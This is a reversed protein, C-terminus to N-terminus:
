EPHKIIKYYDKGIEYRKEMLYAFLDYSKINSNSFKKTIRNLTKEKDFGLYRIVGGNRIMDKKIKTQFSRVSDDVSFFYDSRLNIYRITFLLSKFDFYEHSKLYVIFLYPYNFLKYEIKRIEHESRAGTIWIYFKVLRKGLRIKNSLNIIDSYTIRETYSEIAFYRTLKEPNQEYNFAHNIKYGVPMNEIKGSIEPNHHIRGDYKLYGKRYIKLKFEKYKIKSGKVNNIFRVRLGNAETTSLYRKLGKMLKVNPKEDTDLILIWNGNCKGEGFAYIPGVYGLAISNFINLKNLRFKSKSKILFKKGSPKSQDILVVQDVYTHITKILSIAEKVDDKSFILVSLLKDTM